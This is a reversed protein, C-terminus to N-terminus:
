SYWWCRCGWRVLVGKGWGDGKRDTSRVAPAAAWFLRLKRCLFNYPLFCSTTQIFTIFHPLINEKLEKESLFIEVIIQFIGLEHKRGIVFGGKFYHRTWHSFFASSNFEILLLVLDYKWVLRGHMEFDVFIFYENQAFVSPLRTKELECLINMNKAFWFHFQKISREPQFM